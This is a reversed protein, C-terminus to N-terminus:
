DLRVVMGSGAINTNVAPNGKYYVSGSGAIKVNLTESVQLRITGSGSTETKATRAPLSVLDVEGSGSISVEESDVSGSLVKIKGSGNIRVSLDNAAVENIRVEGSGNVAIKAQGSSSLRTAELNGSGLITLAAVSPGRVTIRIDEFARLNTNNRVKIRLEGNSINTEILDIINRQAEILVESNDSPIFLFEQGIEFSIASFSSLARTEKVVPGKGSTTKRCSPLVFLLGAFLILTFLKGIASPPPYQGAQDSAASTPLRSPFLSRNCSRKM